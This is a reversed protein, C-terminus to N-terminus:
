LQASLFFSDVYTSDGNQDSITKLFPGSSVPQRPWPWQLQGSKSRTICSFRSPWDRRPGGGGWCTGPNFQGVVRWSIFLKSAWEVSFLILLINTARQRYKQNIDPSLQMGQKRSRWFCFCTYRNAKARSRKAGKSTFNRSVHSTM